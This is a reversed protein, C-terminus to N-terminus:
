AFGPHFQPFRCAQLLALPSAASGMLSMGGNLRREFAIAEDRCDFSSTETGGRSEAAETVKPLKPLTHGGQIGMEKEAISSIPTTTLRGQPANFFHM